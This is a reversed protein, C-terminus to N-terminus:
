LVASVRAAQVRSESGHPLKCPPPENTPVWFRAIRCIRQLFDDMITASRTVMANVRPAIVPTLISPLHNTRGCAIPAM